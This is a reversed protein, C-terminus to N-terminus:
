VCYKKLESGRSDPFRRGSNGITILKAINSDFKKLGGPACLEASLILVVHVLLLIFIVLYYKLYTAM